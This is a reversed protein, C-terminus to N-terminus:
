DQPGFGIVLTSMLSLLWDELLEKLTRHFEEGRLVIINKGNQPVYLNRGDLSPYGGTLAQWYRGLIISYNSVPMDIVQINLTTRIEIHACLFLTVDQIEGITSQQLGNYSFMIISNENTCSLGLEEMIIKSMVSPGSGGDILFCHSKKDMIKVFIFFPSNKVLHRFNNVGVKNVISDEEKVKKSLNSITSSKREMFINLHNQQEPVVVMDILTADVKINALQNLTNYKSSPLPSSVGQSDTNKTAQVTTAPSSSNPISSTHPLDCKGKSAYSKNRTNIIMVDEPEPFDLVDITTEPRKGFIKDRASKKVECTSEKHHEECINCWSRPM